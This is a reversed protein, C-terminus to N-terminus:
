LDEPWSPSEVPVYGVTIDRLSKRYALYAEHTATDAETITYSDDSTLDAWRSSEFDTEALLRNREIRLEQLSVLYAVPSTWTETAPVWTWGVQADESVLRYDVYETPDVWDYRLFVGGIAIQTAPDIQLYEM